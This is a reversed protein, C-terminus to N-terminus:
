GELLTKRLTQELWARYRDPSWGYGDVLRLYVSENAIAYITSAADDETIDAALAGRAALTAAVDHCDSRMAAHGRDRLAALQPDSSAASEGLAMIRATRVMLDATLAAFEDLLKPATKLM